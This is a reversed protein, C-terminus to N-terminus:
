AWWEVTLIVADLGLEDDFGSARTTVVAGRQVPAQAIGATVADAVAEAQAATGGWCQVAFAVQDALQDGLLNRIPDHTATFVVYPTPAGQRIANHAIRDGVLAATGAHGALLARLDTEASM